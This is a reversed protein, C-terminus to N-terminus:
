RRRYYDQNDLFLIAFPFSGIYLNSLQKGTTQDRFDGHKVVSCECHPHVQLSTDLLLRQKKSSKEDASHAQQSSSEAVSNGQQLELAKELQDEGCHQKMADEWYFWIPNIFDKGVFCKALPISGSLSYEIKVEVKNTKRSYICKRNYDVRFNDEFFEESHNLVFATRAASLPIRKEEELVDVYNFVKLTQYTPRRKKEFIPFDYRESTLLYRVIEADSARSFELLVYQSKDSAGPVKRKHWSGEVLLRCRLQKEMRKIVNVIAYWSDGWSLQITRNQNKYTFDGVVLKKNSAVRVEQALTRYAEQYRKSLYGVNEAVACLQKSTADMEGELEKMEQKLLLSDEIEKRMAEEQKRIEKQVAEEQDRIRKREPEVPM